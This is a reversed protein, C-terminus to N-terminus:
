MRVFFFNALQALISIESIRTIVQSVGARAAHAKKQDGWNGTALSYNLGNSITKTKIALEVKFDRGKDIFKQAYLRMDKVMTKFLGRFLFAMLPGAMDLRKNGYHDRDDPERRGLATMLLRNTMHGLFCAKKKECFDSIGVHPLMEKQLIDRGYKIRKEKPVGARAGRAGIFSLAVRQDQVVFAEDLSPKLMEMMEADDPDCMIHDLIDNDTVISLARFVIMIPIEQKVYPITALIRQGLSTKKM